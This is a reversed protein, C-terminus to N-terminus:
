AISHSAISHWAISEPPTAQMEYAYEEVGWYEADRGMPPMDGDDSPEGDSAEYCLM